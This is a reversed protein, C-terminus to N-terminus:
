LPYISDNSQWSFSKTQYVFKLIHKALRKGMKFLGYYTNLEPHQRGCMFPFEGKTLDEMLILTIRYPFM